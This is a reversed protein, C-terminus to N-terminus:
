DHTKKMTDLKYVRKISKQTLEMHPVPNVQCDLSDDQCTPVTSNTLFKRIVNAATIKALLASKRIHQTINLILQVEYDGHRLCIDRLIRQYTM